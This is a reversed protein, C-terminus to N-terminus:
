KKKTEVPGGNGPTPNAQSQAILRVAARGNRQGIQAKFCAHTGITVEAPHSLTQDLCIVDGPKLSALQSALITSHGIVAHLDLPVTGIATVMEDHKKETKSMTPDKRAGIRSSLRDLVPQVMQYPYCINLVGTIEGMRLDLTVSLVQAESTALQIYEPNSEYSQVTFSIDMIGAWASKLEAVIVEMIDSSISMEIATLERPEQAGAGDGGLLIDIMSLILPLNMEVAIEGINPTTALVGIYTPRLLSLVFEGYTFQDIAVLKIEMSTKLAVFLSSQIGKVFLDHLVQFGRLQDGSVLTPKRFNYSVVKVEEASAKAPESETKVDGSKMAQLLADVEEQSLTKDM